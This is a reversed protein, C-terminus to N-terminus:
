RIHTQLERKLEVYFVNRGLLRNGPVAKKMKGDRSREIHRFIPTKGLLPQTYRPHVLAHGIGGKNGVIVIIEWLPLNLSAFIIGM